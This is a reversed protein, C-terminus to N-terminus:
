VIKNVQQQQTSLGRAYTKATKTVKREGESQVMLLVFIEIQSVVKICQKMFILSVVITRVGEPLRYLQDGLSIIFSRPRSEYVVHHKWM